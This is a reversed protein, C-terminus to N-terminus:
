AESYPNVTPDHSSAAPIYTPSLLRISEKVQGRRYLSEQQVHRYHSKHAAYEILPSLEFVERQFDKLDDLSLSLRYRRDEAEERTIGTRVLKAVHWIARAVVLREDTDWPHVFHWDVLQEIIEAEIAEIDRKIRNIRISTRRLVLLHVRTGPPSDKWFEERRLRGRIKKQAKVRVTARRVIGEILEENARENEVCQLRPTGNVLRVFDLRVDTDAVDADIVPTDLVNM